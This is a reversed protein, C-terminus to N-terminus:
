QSIHIRASGTFRVQDAPRLDLDGAQAVTHTIVGSGSSLTVTETGTVPDGGLVIDIQTLAPDQVQVQIDFPVGAQPPAATQFQVLTKPTLEGGNYYWTQPAALPAGQLVTFEALSFRSVDSGDLCVEVLEGTATRYVHTYM